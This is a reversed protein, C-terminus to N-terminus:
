LFKIENELFYEIKGKENMIMLNGNFDVKIIKGVKIKGNNNKFSVTQNKNYLKKNYQDLYFNINSELFKLNSKIIIALENALSDIDTVSGIENIISTAYNLNSFNTQNINLGIGIM